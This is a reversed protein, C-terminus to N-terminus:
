DLDLKKRRLARKARTNNAREHIAERIEPVREALAAKALSILKRVQANIELGLRLINKRVNSLAQPFNARLTQWVKRVIPTDPLMGMLLANREDDSKATIFPMLADTQDADNRLTTIIIRLLSGRWSLESDNSRVIGMLWAHYESVMKQIEEETFLNSMLKQCVAQETQWISAEDNLGLGMFSATLAEFQNAAIDEINRAIKKKIAAGTEEQTMETLVGKGFDKVSAFTRSMMRKVRGM